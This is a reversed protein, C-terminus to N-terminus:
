TNSLYIHFKLSIIRSNAELTHKIKNNFKTYTYFVLDTLFIVSSLKKINM